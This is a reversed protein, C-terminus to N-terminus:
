KETRGLPFTRHYAAANIQSRATYRVQKIHKGSATCSGPEHVLPPTHLSSYVRCLHAATEAPAGLPSTTQSNINIKNKTWKIFM